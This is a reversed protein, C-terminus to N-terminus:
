EKWSRVNKWHSKFWLYNYFKKFLYFPHFHILVYFYYYSRHFFIIFSIPNMFCCNYLPSKFYYHRELPIFNETRSFTRNARDFENHHFRRINFGPRTGWCLLNYSYDVNQFNVRSDACSWRVTRCMWCVNGLVPGSSKLYVLCQSIKILKESDAFM